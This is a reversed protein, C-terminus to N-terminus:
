LLPPRNNVAMIAYPHWAARGVALKPGTSTQTSHTARTCLGVLQTSKRQVCSGESQTSMFLLQQRIGSKANPPGGCSVPGMDIDM